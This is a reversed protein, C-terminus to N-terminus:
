VYVYIQIHKIKKNKIFIYTKYKRSLFTLKNKMYMYLRVLEATPDDWWYWVGLNDCDFFKSPRGVSKRGSVRTLFFPKLIHKYIKIM